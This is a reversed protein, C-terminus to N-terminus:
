EDDDGVNELLKDFLITHKLVGQNVPAWREHQLVGVVRQDDEASLGPGRLPELADEVVESGGGAEDDVEGLAGKNGHGQVRLSESGGGLHEATHHLTEGLGVEAQREGAVLERELRERGEDALGVLVERAPSREQEGRSAAEDEDVSHQIGKGCMCHRRKLKRGRDNGGKVGKTASEEPPHAIFPGGARLAEDGPVFYATGFILAAEAHASKPELVRAEEDLEKV